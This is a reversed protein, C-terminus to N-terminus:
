PIYFLGAPRFSSKVDDLARELSRVRGELETLRKVIENDSSRIRKSQKLKRM